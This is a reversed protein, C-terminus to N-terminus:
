RRRWLWNWRPNRRKKIYGWGQCMRCKNARLKGTGNCLYCEETGPPPWSLRKRPNLEWTGPYATRNYESLSIDEAKRRITRPWNGRPKIEYLYIQGKKNRLVQVVRGRVPTNDIYVIDGVKFVAGKRSWYDGYTARGSIERASKQWDARLDEYKRPTLTTM